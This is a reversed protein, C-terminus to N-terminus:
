ARLLHNRYEVPTMKQKEWQPRYQNYYRMYQDIRFAVSDFTKCDYFEVEDKMHGFFSEKPANDICRGVRSMSRVMGLREMTTIWQPGTYHTGRDSHIIAGKLSWVHTMLNRELHAITDLVLQMDINLSCKWAVIEGSAIDKISSVYVFRTSWRVYTIDTCFYRYVDTQTFARNLLNEATTIETPKPAKKYPNTRRVKASLGYKKMIRRIKGLSMSVGGRQLAMLIRRAGFRKKSTDFISKIMLHDDHDFANLNRQNKWAYYGQPSM